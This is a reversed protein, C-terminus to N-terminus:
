RVAVSWAVSSERADSMGVMKPKLGQFDGASRQSRSSRGRSAGVGALGGFDTVRELGTDLGEGFAPEPVLEDLGGPRKNVAVPDHGRVHVEHRDLGLPRGDDLDLGGAAGVLPRILPDGVAHHELDGRLHRARSSRPM